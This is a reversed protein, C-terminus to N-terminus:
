RLDFRKAKERMAKIIQSVRSSTIQLNRAIEVNNKGAIKHEAVLREQETLSTYLEKFADKREVTIEPGAEESALADLPSPM